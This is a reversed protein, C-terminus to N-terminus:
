DWVLEQRSHAEGALKATIKVFLAHVARGYAERQRIKTFRQSVHAPARLLLEEWTPGIKGGRLKVRGESDLIPRSPHHLSDMELLKQLEQQILQEGLKTRAFNAPVAIIDKKKKSAKAKLTMHRVLGKRLQQQIKSVPPKKSTRADDTSGAAPAEAVTADQADGTARGDDGCATEAPLKGQLQEEWSTFQHAKQVIELSLPTLRCSLGDLAPTLVETKLILAVRHVACVAAHSCASAVFTGEPEGQKPQMAVVRMCKVAQMPTPLHTPKCGRATKRWVTLICGVQWQVSGTPVFLVIAGTACEELESADTNASQEKLSAALARWAAARSTRKSPAGVLHRVIAMEREALQHWNLKSRVRRTSAPNPLAHADAPARLSTLLLWLWPLASEVSKAKGDGVGARSLADALTLIHGDTTQPLNDETGQEAGQVEQWSAEDLVPPPLCGGAGLRQAQQDNMAALEDIDQNDAQQRAKIQNLLEFCKADSGSLSPGPSPEQEGDNKHIHPAQEEDEVFDEAFEGEEGAEESWPEQPEDVSVDQRRACYQVYSRLLTEATTDSCSAMLDLAAQLARKACMAFEADSIAETTNSRIRQPPQKSLRCSTQQMKRGAAYLFDRITMQSSPFQGRLYGFWQELPLESSRWPYWPSDPGVSACAVTIMGVLQQVNTQTVRHLWCSGKQLGLEGCAKDAEMAGLDLLVFSTLCNELRQRTSLGPHFVASVALCSTLNMLLAGVLSWPVQVGAVDPVLDTIYHFSNFFSAAELDSQGDYGQFAGPPMKLDLCASFDVFYKGFRITRAPSRCQGAMNKQVHAPGNLGFLVQGDVVPKKFPLRPLSCDPLPAYTVRSWFPLTQVVDSSIGTAQGLLFSKIYSHQTANDLVITKVRSAGALVQGSLRLMDLASSERSTPIHCASFRPLGQVAPDWLLFELMEHAYNLSSADWKLPEPAGPATESDASGAEPAPPSKLPLFGKSGDDVDSAGAKPAPDFATGVYGRGARLQIIDIGKLIYTKDLALTLFRAPKSPKASSLTDSTRPVALQNEILMCNHQLGELNLQALFPEPLSKAFMNNLALRPITFSLGFQQVLHLNSAAMAMSVGAEAMMSLELQSLQLGRMGSTGRKAREAQEIAAVLIGQVVPHEHLAGSAVHCALKLEVDSVSTLCNRRVKDALSRISAGPAALRPDWTSAAIKLCPMVQGAIFDGLAKSWRSPAVSLFQSRVYSQLAVLNLGFMDDLEKSLLPYAPSSKIEETLTSLGDPDFCRASLLKAASYKKYFRLMMRIISRNNGLESCVSCMPPVGKEVISGDEAACSHHRIVYSHSPVDYTYTHNFEGAEGKVFQSSNMVKTISYSAWLEFMDGLQVVKASKPGRRVWFGQCQLMQTKQTMVNGDEPGAEADKVPLRGSGVGRSVPAASSAQALKAANKVHTAGNVHQKVFRLTTSSIMDFVAYQQTAKRKCAKCRIPHRKSFEGEALLELLPHDRVVQRKDEGDEEYGVLTLIDPKARPVDPCPAEAVHAAVVM